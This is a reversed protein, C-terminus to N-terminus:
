FKNFAIIKTKTDCFKKLMPIFISDRRISTIVTINYEKKIYTSLFEAMNPDDMGHFRLFALMDTTFSDYFIIFITGMVSIVDISLRIQGYVEMMNQYAQPILTKYDLAVCEQYKQYLNDVNRDSIEINKAFFYDCIEERSMQKEKLKAITCVIKASYTYGKFALKNATQSVYINDDKCKPCSYGLNHIRIRKGNTFYIMKKSVAHRYVLKTNCKPCILIEPKYYKSVVNM